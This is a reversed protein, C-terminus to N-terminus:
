NKIFSKYAYMMLAFIFLIILVKILEVIEYPWFILDILGNIAFAACFIAFNEKRKQKNTLKNNEQECQMRDAYIYFKFTLLELLLFGLIILIQLVISNVKFIALQIGQAIYIAAILWGDFLQYKMFKKIFIEKDM